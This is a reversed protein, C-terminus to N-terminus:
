DRRAFPEAPMALDMMLLRFDARHRLPDLADETRYAQPGRYGMRRGQAAPGDGRRGREGGRRGIRGIRPAPWDALAAHASASRFWQEGTRSALADYPGGGAPPRGRRRRRRGRRPPGPRPQPLERGPRLPLGADRPAGPDAGRPDRRSGRVTRPGRGPPRAPPTRGLSQQRRGGRWRSLGPVKPNDAALKQYIALAPRYEAEAETSRGAQFLLSAWASTASRWAPQPIRHRRPQRRGAEALIALAQRHEAEAESPKGTQRLLIGLNNHSFALDSRFETVTPHADALRQQIALAARYEAEAESPRGMDLLMIGLSNHSTRWAAASDTVAPNDDALKRQIAQAQRYEAAAESPQGTEGLLWGLGYHSYRWAPQPIRHVDPNDDALKQYIAM